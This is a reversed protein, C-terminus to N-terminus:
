FRLSGLVIFMDWRRRLERPDPNDLPSLWATGDVHHYEARLMFSPTVDYRLGAVIDRAFRTFAPRGTAAAYRKGEADDIDFISNDYRLLLEWDPLFRYQGQIFWNQSTVRTAPVSRGVISSATYRHSFESTLILREGSYQLSAIWPELLLRSEPFRDNKVPRYRQSLSLYTFGGRWRKNDTEYLIRFGPTMRDQEFDGHAGLGIITSKSGEDNIPLQALMFRADLVGGPVDFEGYLHFGDGALAFKRTRDFYIPQPLIAGPRTFAVDRTETYLGYINKIRGVRIGGRMNEENFLTLDALAFDLWPEGVDTKGTWRSMGQASLRLRSFPQASFNLGIERFDLGVHDRTNGYFNNHTTFVAGQTLFGHLQVRGDAWDLAPANASAGLTLITLGIKLAKASKISAFPDFKKKM